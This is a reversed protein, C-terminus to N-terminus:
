AKAPIKPQRGSEWVMAAAAGILFVL